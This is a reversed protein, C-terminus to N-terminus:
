VPNTVGIIQVVLVPEPTLGYERLIGLPVHIQGHHNMKAAFCVSGMCYNVSNRKNIVRYPSRYLSAEPPRTVGSYPECDDYSGPLDNRLNKTISIEAYDVTIRCLASLM